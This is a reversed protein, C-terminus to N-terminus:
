PPLLTERVSPSVRAPWISWGFKGTDRVTIAAFIVNRSRSSPSLTSTSSPAPPLTVVVRLPDVREADLVRALDEDVGRVGLV